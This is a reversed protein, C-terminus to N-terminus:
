KRPPSKIRAAGADGEQRIIQKLVITIEHLQQNLQAMDEHIKLIDGGMKTMSQTLTNVDDEVKKQQTKFHIREQNIASLKRKLQQMGHEAEKNNNTHRIGSITSPSTATATFATTM